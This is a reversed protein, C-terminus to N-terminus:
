IGHRSEMLLAELKRCKSLDALVGSQAAVSAFRRPDGFYDLADDLQLEGGTALRHVNALLGSLRPTPTPTRHTVM